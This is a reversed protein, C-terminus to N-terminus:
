IKKKNKNGGGGGKINPVKYGCSTPADLNSGSQEMHKKNIFELRRHGNYSCSLIHFYM